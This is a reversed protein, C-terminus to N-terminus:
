STPEEPEGMSSFLHIEVRLAETAIYFSRLNAKPAQVNECFAPLNLNLLESALAKQV